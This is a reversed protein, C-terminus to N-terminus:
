GKVSGIMVGKVFFRQVFPYIILMPLSSLVIVAYKIVEARMAQRAAEDSGMDMLSQASNIILVKRLFLQLPQLAEESIYLMASFYSNWHGVGYYLAIVAVIPGSLPLMIRILTMFHSAGDIEAAEQLEYPISTTFFTRMIILNYVSVSGPLILAGWSNTLGLTKAVMLYVPILGGSFFMTFTIVKMLVDRGWLNKRSLPYAALITMVLNFATGMFLIILSNKYGTMISANKFVEAYNSLTPDVPWLVMKGATVGIADSFSASIVYILPYVIILAVISLLVVVVIEFTVDGRSLRANRNRFPPKKRMQRSVNHENNMM